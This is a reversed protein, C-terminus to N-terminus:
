QQARAIELQLLPPQERTRTSPSRLATAERTESCTEKVPLCIKLWQVVM